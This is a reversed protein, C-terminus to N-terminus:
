YDKRMGCKICKKVFSGKLAGGCHLCLNNQMRRNREQELMDNYLSDAYRKAVINGQRASKRYYVLALEYKGSGDYISGLLLQAVSDGNDADSKISPIISARLVGGMPEGNSDLFNSWNM